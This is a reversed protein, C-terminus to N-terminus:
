VTPPPTGGKPPSFSDGAFGTSWCISLQTVRLCSKQIRLAETDRHNLEERLGCGLDSSQGIRRRGRGKDWGPCDCPVDVTRTELRLMATGNRFRRGVISGNRGLKHFLAHRRSSPFRSRHGPGQAGEFSRSTAKRETDIPLVNWDQAAALWRGEPHFALSPAANPLSVRWKDPKTITWVVVQKGGTAWAVTQSLPHAAVARVGSSVRTVPEKSVWKRTDFLEFSGSEPQTPDGFGIALLSNTLTAYATAIRRNLKSAILETGGQVPRFCVIAYQGSIFLSGDVPHCAIAHIARQQTLRKVAAEPLVSHGNIGLLMGAQTGVHLCGDPGFTMATLADTGCDLVVM